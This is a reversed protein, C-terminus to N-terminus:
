GASSRAEIASLERRALVGFVVTLLGRISVVLLRDVGDLKLLVARHRRCIWSAHRGIRRYTIIRHWETVTKLDADNRAQESSLGM